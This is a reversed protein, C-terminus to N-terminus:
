AAPEDFEFGRDCYQQLFGRLRTLLRGEEGTVRHPVQDAGHGGNTLQEDLVGFDQGSILMDAFGHRWQWASADALRAALGELDRVALRLEPADPRNEAEARLKGGISRLVRVGGDVIDSYDAPLRM